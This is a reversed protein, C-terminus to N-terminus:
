DQKDHRGDEVELPLVNILGCNSCKIGPQDVLPVRTEFTLRCAGCTITFKPGVVLGLAALLSFSRGSIAAPRIGGKLDKSM